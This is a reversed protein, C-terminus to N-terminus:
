LIHRTIQEATLGLLCFLIHTHMAAGKFYSKCLGFGDKLRSNAREVSTRAKSRELKPPDLEPAVGGKPAKRPIVSVKGSKDIFERIAKADYGKDMLSYLSTVRLSTIVELPIAVQSDNVSASTIIASLPIGHDSVDIHLKYGKWSYSSGDKKKKGYDCKSPLDNIMEEVSLFPQYDLRKMEKVPEEGKKPRGKKKKGGKNKKVAYKKKSKERAPVDTSDRSVNEVIRGKYAERVMASQIAELLNSKGFESFSNSFTGESPIKRIEPFGCIRRLTPDLKLREILEINTGIGLIGKAVFARFLAIRDAKPRGVCKEAFFERYNQISIVDLIFILKQLPSTLVLEEVLQPILLPQYNM